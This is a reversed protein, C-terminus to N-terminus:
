APSFVLIPKAQADRNDVLALAEGAQSLVGTVGTTMSAPIPQGYSLARAEAEDAVRIPFAITLAEALSLFEPSTLPEPQVDRGPLTM